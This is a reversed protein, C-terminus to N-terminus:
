VRASTVHHLDHNPSRHALRRTVARTVVSKRCVTNRSTPYELISGGHIKRLIANLTETPDTAIKKRQQSNDITVEEKSCARHKRKVGSKANTDALEQFRSAAVNCPKSHCAIDMQINVTESLTPPTQTKDNPHFYRSSVKCWVNSAEVKSHLTVARNAVLQLSKFDPLYPNEPGVLTPGETLSLSRSLSM